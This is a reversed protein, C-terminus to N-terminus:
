NIIGAQYEADTLAEIQHPINAYIWLKDGEKLEHREKLASVTLKGRKVEIYKRPPNVRSHDPFYQRKATEGKTMFYTKQEKPLKEESDPCALKHPYLGRKVLSSRSLGNDDDWNAFLEEKLVSVKLPLLEPEIDSLSRELNFPSAPTYIVFRIGLGSVWRNVKFWFQRNKPYRFYVLAMFAQIYRSVKYLRKKEAELLKRFYDLSSVSVLSYPYFLPCYRKLEPYNDETFTFYALNKTYDPAMVEINEQSLGINFFSYSLYEIKQEGMEKIVERFQDLPKLLFHDELYIYIYPYKAHKIIERTSEAWDQDPLGSFFRVNKETSAFTEKIYEEVDKRFRGRINVLWNDSIEYVLPYTEKFKALKHESNIFVNCLATVM